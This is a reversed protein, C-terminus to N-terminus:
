ILLKLYESDQTLLQSQLQKRKNNLIYQLNEGPRM